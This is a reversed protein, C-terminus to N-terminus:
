DEKAELPLALEPHQAEFVEAPIVDADTGQDPYQVIYDGPQVVKEGGSVQITCHYNPRSHLFPAAPKAAAPAKPKAAAKKSPAKM